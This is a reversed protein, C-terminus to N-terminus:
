KTIKCENKLMYSFARSIRDKRYYEHFSLYDKCSVCGTIDYCKGDIETVIHGHKYKPISEPYISKLILHFNLCSGNTFIREMESHSDRIISILNLIKRHKTM